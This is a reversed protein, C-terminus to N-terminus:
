REGRRARFGSEANLKDSTRTVDSGITHLVGHEWPLLTGQEREEQGKLMAAKDDPRVTYSTSAGAAPVTKM